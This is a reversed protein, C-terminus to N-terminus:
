TRVNIICLKSVYIDENDGPEEDLESDDSDESEYSGWWKQDLKLVRTVSERASQQKGKRKARHDIERRREEMRGGSWGESRMAEELLLAIDERGPVVSHASVIDLATLKRRTLAFLSSGRTM